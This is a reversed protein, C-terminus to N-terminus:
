EKLVGGTISELVTAWASSASQNPCHSLCLLAFDPLLAAPGHFCGPQQRGNGNQNENRKDEGSDHLSCRLGSAIM